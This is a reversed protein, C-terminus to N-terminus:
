SVAVVSSPQNKENPAVGHARSDLQPKGDVMFQYLHHGHHLPIQVFWTGDPQRTMEHVYRNWKNFEGIVSVMKADPALCYFNVPKAMKRASLRNKGGPSYSNLYSM